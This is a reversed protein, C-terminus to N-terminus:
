VDQKVTSSATASARQGTETRTAAASGGQGGGNTQTSGGRAAPSGGGGPGGRGRTSTSLQDHMGVTLLAASVISAILFGCGPLRTRKIQWWMLIGSGGWFVMAVFMADVQLAWFWKTNQHPSYMRSLHMRQLFSKLEMDPKSDERLATVTGTGLNYTVVSPVGDVEASFRLSPARRGTLAEGSPLNLQALAEPVLRQAEALANNQIQVNTIAGLPNAPPAAEPGEPQPELFTTRIEGAGTLPNVSVQHSAEDGNVTYTLFSSFQPERTDTLIVEPGDVLFSEINMEEVISEAMDQPPTLQGMQGSVVDNATFTTLQDGTFYRPHNFFWGTFGYLLVFPFMFIGSYLHVRRILRM